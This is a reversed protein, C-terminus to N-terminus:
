VSSLHNAPRNCGTKSRNEDCQMESENVNALDMCFRSTSGKDLTKHTIKIHGAQESVSGQQQQQQNGSGKRPIAAHRFVMSGWLGALEGPDRGSTM